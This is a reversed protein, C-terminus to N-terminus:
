SLANGTLVPVARQHSPQLRHPPCKGMAVEPQKEETLADGQDAGPHLLDGQEPQGVPQAMRCEEQSQHSKGRLDGAAKM